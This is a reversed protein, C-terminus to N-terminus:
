AYPPLLETIMQLLDGIVTIFYDNPTEHNDLGIEQTCM